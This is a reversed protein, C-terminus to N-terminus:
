WWIEVNGKLNLGLIMQELTEELLVVGLGLPDSTGTINHLRTHMYTKETMENLM